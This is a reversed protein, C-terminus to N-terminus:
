EDYGPSEDDDLGPTPFDVNIEGRDALEDIWLAIEERSWGCSDNLHIIFDYLTGTKDDRHDFCTCSDPPNVKTLVGPLARALSEISKNNIKAMPKAPADDFFFSGKNEIYGGHAKANVTPMGALSKILATKQEDDWKHQHQANDIMKNIIYNTMHEQGEHELMEISVTQQVYYKEGDYKYIIKYENAYISTNFYVELKADSPFKKSAFENLNALANKYWEHKKKLYEEDAVIYGKDFINQNLWDTM